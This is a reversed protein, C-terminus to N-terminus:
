FTFYDGSQGNSILILVLSQCYRSIEINLFQSKSISVFCIFCIWQDVLMIWDGTSSPTCGGEAVVMKFGFDNPMMAKDYSIDMDFQIVITSLLFDRLFHSQFQFLDRIYEIITWNYICSYINVWTKSRCWCHSPPSIVGWTRRSWRLRWAASGATSTMAARSTCYPATPTSCSRERPRQPARWTRGSRRWTRSLPASRSPSKPSRVSWTRM